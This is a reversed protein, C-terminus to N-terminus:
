ISSFGLIQGTSATGQTTHATVIRDTRFVLLFPQDRKAPNNTKYVSFSAERDAEDPLRVPLASAAVSGAPLHRVLERHRLADRADRTKVLKTLEERTTLDHRVTAVVVVTLVQVAEHHPLADLQQLRDDREEPLVWHAGGLLLVELLECAADLEDGVAPVQTRFPQDLHGLDSLRHIAFFGPMVQDSDESAMRRVDPVGSSSITGDAHRCAPVASQLSTRDAWILSQTLDLSIGQRTLVVQGAAEHSATVAPEYRPLGGQSDAAPLGSPLRPSARQGRLSQDSLLPM